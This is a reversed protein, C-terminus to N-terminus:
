FSEQEDFETIEQFSPAVNVALATAPKRARAPTPGTNSPGDDGDSGTSSADLGGYPGLNTGGQGAHDSKHIRGHDAHLGTHAHDDGHDDGKDVSGEVAYSRDHAQTETDGVVARTRGDATGPRGYGKSVLLQSADGNGRRRTRHARDPDGRPGLLRPHRPQREPSVENVIIHIILLHSLQLGPVQGAVGKTGQEPRAGAKSGTAAMGTGWPLSGDTDTLPNVNCSFARRGAPGKERNEAPGQAECPSLRRM